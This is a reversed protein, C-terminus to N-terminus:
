RVLCPLNQVCEVQGNTSDGQKNLTFQFGMQSQVKVPTGDVVYPHFHYQSLTQKGAAVLAPHGTVTQIGVLKGTEDVAINFVVAGQINNKMAQAPYQPMVKNEVLGLM